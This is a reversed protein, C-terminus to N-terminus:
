RRESEPAARSSKKLADRIERLLVVDEPAPAPPAPLVAAKMRVIQKVRVFMVPALIPCDLALAMFSGYPFRLVGAKTLADRTFPGQCEIPPSSLMIFLTAFDSGGLARGLLPMLLHLLMPDVIKGFAADIIVGLALDIVNGRSVFDEM